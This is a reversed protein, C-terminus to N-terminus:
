PAAGGSCIPLQLGATYPLRRRLLEGIAAQSMATGMRHVSNVRILSRLPKADCGIPRHM